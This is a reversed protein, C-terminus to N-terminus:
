NCDEFGRYKKISADTICWKRKPITKSSKYNLTFLESLGKRFPCMNYHLKCDEITGMWACNPFICKVQKEELTNMIIQDRMMGNKNFTARCLPCHWGIILICNHICQYCFSHGCHLIYPHQYINKCVPCRLEASLTTPQQLM